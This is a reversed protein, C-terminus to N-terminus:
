EINWKGLYKCILGQAWDQNNLLPHFSPLKQNIRKQILICEIDFHGVELKIKM